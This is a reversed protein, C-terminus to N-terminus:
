KTGYNLHGGSSNTRLNTSDIQKRLFRPRTLIAIKKQIREENM